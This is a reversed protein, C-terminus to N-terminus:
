IQWSDGAGHRAAGHAGECRCRHGRTLASPVLGEQWTGPVLRSRGEPSLVFWLSLFCSFFLFLPLAPLDPGVPLGSGFAVGRLSVIYRTHPHLGGRLLTRDGPQLLFSM